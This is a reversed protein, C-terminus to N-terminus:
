ISEGKTSNSAAGPSGAARPSPRPVVDHLHHGAARIVGADVRIFTPFGAPRFARMVSRDTNAYVVRAVPRLAAVLAAPGAEDPGGEVIALLPLAPPDLVLEARAAACASCDHAFFGVLTVGSRVSANTIPEGESTTTEFRGVPDGVPPGVSEAGVREGLIRIRRALALVLLSNAVSVTVLAATLMGLLM